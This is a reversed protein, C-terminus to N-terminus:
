RLKHVAGQRRSAAIMGHLNLVTIKPKSKNAMKERWSQPMIKTWKKPESKKHKMEWATTSMKCAGAFHANRVTLALKVPLNSM